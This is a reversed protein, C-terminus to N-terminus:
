NESEMFILGMHVEENKLLISEQHYASNQVSMDKQPLVNRCVDHLYYKKNSSSPLLMWKFLAQWMEDWCVTTQLSKM